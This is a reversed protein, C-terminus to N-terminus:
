LVPRADLTVFERKRDRAVRSVATTPDHNWLIWWGQDAAEGLLAPKRRRTDLPYVDYALHWMQRLHFTSPVVDGPYLATQGESEFMLALHGRTHGGTVRGCLGPVIPERDDVLTLRGTDRLALIDPLPYATELEKAGSTAEEWECRGVVYRANPFTPKLQRHENYQTAGGVHDFHLHSFVVVDVDEASVNLRMLSELLPTGEEMDYFSRDLKPHKGGYGTDILVTHRGDRALVCNNAVPIRNLHDPRAVKDWLTKPIVGFMVGGDLRFRGGNVTDLQWNGLQM